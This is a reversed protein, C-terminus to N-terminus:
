NFNSAPLKGAGRSQFPGSLALSIPGKLASSGSPTITLDFSIVGSKVAHSGTFTQKLLSQANGGSGSGSGSSSGCAAVAGVTLLSLLLVAARRLSGVVRTM